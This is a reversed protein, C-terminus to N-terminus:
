NWIMKREFSFLYLYIVVLFFEIALLHDVVILALKIVVQIPVFWTTHSKIQNLELDNGKWFFFFFCLCTFISLFFGWYSILSWDCDISVKNSTHACIMYTTLVLSVTSNSNLFMRDWFLFRWQLFPSYKLSVM